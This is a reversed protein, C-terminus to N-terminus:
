LWIGRSLYVLPLLLTFLTSFLYFSAKFNKDEFGYKIAKGLLVALILVWISIALTILIIKM